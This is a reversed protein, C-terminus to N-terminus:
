SVIILAMFINLIENFQSSVLREPDLNKDSLDILEVREHHLIDEIVEFDSKGQEKQRKEAVDLKQYIQYATKFSIIVSNKNAMNPFMVYVSSLSDGAPLRIFLLFPRLKSNRFIKFNM